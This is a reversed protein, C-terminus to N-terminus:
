NYHIFKTKKCSIFFTPMSLVTNNIHMVTTNENIGSAPTYEHMKTYM